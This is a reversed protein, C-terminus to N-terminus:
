TLRDLGGRLHGAPENEYRTGITLALLLEEALVEGAGKVAERHLLERRAVKREVVRMAGARRAGPQPALELDIRIKHDRVLAPWEGVARDAGQAPRGVKVVVQDLSHGIAVLNGHVLREAFQGDFLALNNKVAVVAVGQTHLVDVALALAAPVFCRVFADDRVELPAMALGLGLEDAGLDLPQHRGPRARDAFPLPELRLIEGHGHRIARDHVHAVQRDRGRLAPKRFKLQGLTFRQNRAGDQFLDALPELEQNVDTEIVQAEGSRGIRQGAALCLSDPEGRLDSRFEHADQVDKILGRDPEMLAVVPLQDVCQERQAVDAVRHDDDLMVFFRHSRRAEDDVDPRPGALVTAFDDGCAAEVIDQFRRLRDGPREQAALSRDGQRRPAPFAVPLHDDDTAGGLIVQLVDIHIKRQALQDANGADAPGPLACEDAVDEIPPHRLVEVPRLVTRAGCALDGAQVEDVLDDVDVLRRDTARRAGIRRGVRADKGVNTLEEGLHRFRADAAVLRAAEAEVHLAAAALVALAVADDLDLHM